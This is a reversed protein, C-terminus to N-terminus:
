RTGGPRHHAPRPEVSSPEGTHPDGASDGGEARAPPRTSDSGRRAGSPTAPGPTAAATDDEGSAPVPELSAVALMAQSWELGPLLRPIAQRFYAARGSSPRSAGGPLSGEGEPGELKEESAGPLDAPDLVPHEAGNARRALKLAQEAEDLRQLLRERVGDGRAPLAEFGLDRYVPLGARPDVQGGAARGCPGGLGVARERGLPALGAPLAALTGSNRLLRRFRVLRDALEDLGPTGRRQPPTHRTSARAGAGAEAPKVLRALLREALAHAGLLRLTRGVSRLLAAARALELEAVAVPEGQRARRFPEPLPQPYPPSLVEAEQVVDGQLVVRLVMGPPLAPLFPGVTFPVRDLALGDRLDDGTMAMPRGYPKGGMMGKGGQGHDGKGRWPAPPEDPLRHPESELGGALLRRYLRNAAEGPDEAAPVATPDGPVPGDGEEDGSDETAGDAAAPRGGPAAGGGAGATAAAQWRLTARPHPVQDHVRDLAERHEEPVEGAVLLLSAHRPSAVPRLGADLALDEVRNRTGPGAVAFVPAPGGAAFRGLWSM